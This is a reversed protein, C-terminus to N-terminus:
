DSSKFSCVQNRGNDKASYLAQDAIEFLPEYNKQSGMSFNYLGISITVVDLVDSEQHEIGLARICKLLNNAVSLAQKENTNKLVVIFEEGGYRAVFDTELHLNKQLSEAILRLANDGKAHGYYDNYKKFYDVDCILISVEMGQLGTELLTQMHIDFARRNAINTLGDTRSIKQLRLNHSILEQEQSAVDDLLRDILNFLNGLEDKRPSNLRVTHDNNKVVNRVFKEAKLIPRIVVYHVFLTVILLTISFLLSMIITSQNFWDIDFQRKPAQYNFQIAGMNAFLPYYGSIEGEASRISVEDRTLETNILSGEIVSNIVEINFKIGSRQQLKTLVEEDVFRWFLMTGNSKGTLNAKFVSTASFLILKNNLFAYGSRTVPKNNSKKVAGQSILLKSKVFSSPLDFATFSMPTWTKKNWAQGWVKNGKIDYIYIGNLGISKFADIVFNDKTYNENRNNIYDYTETWVANDYNIVDLENSVSQFAIKIRNLDKQDSHKEMLYLQPLQIYSLNLTEIIFTTMIM